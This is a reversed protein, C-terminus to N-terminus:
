RWPGAQRNRGEQGQDRHGAQSRCRAPDFALRHCRKTIGTGRRHSSVSIGDVVDEFEVIGEVETMMPRTYPDWEALRQGRKVKDGDDVYIKSGYTVRQSSRETGQEDLIVMAM